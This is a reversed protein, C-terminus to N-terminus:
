ENVSLRVININNGSVENTTLCTHVMIIWLMSIFRLGHIPALTDRGVDLSVLKSINVLLSFSLLGESM